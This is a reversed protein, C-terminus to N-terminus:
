AYGEVEEEPHMNLRHDKVKLLTVMGDRLLDIKRNVEEIMRRLDEYKKENERKGEIM